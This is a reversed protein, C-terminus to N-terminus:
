PGDEVEVRGTINALRYTDLDEDAELQYGQIRENPTMIRVFGPTRVTRDQESWELTEAELREDQYTQVIVAGRAVFRGEDRYYVIRDARLVASSDGQDDFLHVTVRGGSDGERPRLLTFTSDDRTFRAMYGAEVAFRPRSEATDPLAEPVQTVIFHVDWSEEDPAEETRIDAM